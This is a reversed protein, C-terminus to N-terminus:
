KVFDGNINSFNFNSDDLKYLIDEKDKCYDLSDLDVCTIMGDLNYIKGGSNVCIKKGMNIGFGVTVLSFFILILFFGIIVRWKNSLSM